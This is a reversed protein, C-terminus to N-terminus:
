STIEIRNGDPDMVVSEYYGDGTRRPEGIISYGDERLINTLLDVNTKSGVSIAFHHIGCINELVSRENIDVMQMLELRCEGDFHLFYSNFGKKINTYKDNPIAKFYKVYFKKMVELQTTYIALHAIKL